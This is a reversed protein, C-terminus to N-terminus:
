DFTLYIKYDKMGLDAFIIEFWNGSYMLWKGRLISFLQYAYSIACVRYLSDKM